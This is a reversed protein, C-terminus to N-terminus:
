HRPMFIPCTLDDRIADLDYNFQKAHADSAQPLGELIPDKM